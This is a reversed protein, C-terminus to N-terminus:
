CNWEHYHVIILVFHLSISMSHYCSAWHAVGEVDKEYKDMYQLITDQAEESDDANLLKALLNNVPNDASGRSLWGGRHSTSTSNRSFCNICKFHRLWFLVSAIEDSQILRLVELFSTNVHFLYHRSPYFIWQWWFSHLSHPVILRPLWTLSLWMMQGRHGVCRGFISFTWKGCCSENNLIPQTSKRSQDQVRRQIVSMWILLSVMDQLCNPSIWMWWQKHFGQVLWLSLNNQSMLGGRVLDTNRDGPLPTKRLWM